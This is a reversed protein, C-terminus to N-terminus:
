LLRFMHVVATALGSGSRKVQVSASTTSTSSLQASLTGNGFHNSATGLQTFTKSYAGSTLVYLASSYFNGDGIARISVLYVTTENGVTAGPISTFSTGVSASGGKTMTAGNVELLPATPVTAASTKGILVTGSSVLRVREQNATGFRLDESDEVFIFPNNTNGNFYIGASTGTLRMDGAIELKRAPSVSGIGVNRTDREITIANNDNAADSDAASHTGIHTLNTSGDYKLFGGVYNNDETFRITSVETNATTAKVRLTPNSGAVDLLVGPSSTGVGLRNNASDLYVAGNDFNVDGGSTFTIQNGAADPHKLNTTQLTSM